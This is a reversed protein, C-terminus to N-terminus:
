KYTNVGVAKELQECRKQIITIESKLKGTAKKKKNIEKVLKSRLDRETVLLDEKTELLEQEETRMKQLSALLDLADLADQQEEVKPMDVQEPTQLSEPGEIVEFKPHMELLKEIVSAHNQKNLMPTEAKRLSGDQDSQKAKSRKYEQEIIFLHINENEKKM